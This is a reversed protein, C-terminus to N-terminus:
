ASQSGTTTDNEKNLVDVLAAHYDLSQKLDDGDEKLKRLLDLKTLQQRMAEMDKLMQHIDSSIDVDIDSSSLEKRLRKSDPKETM